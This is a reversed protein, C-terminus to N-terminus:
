KLEFRTWSPCPKVAPGGHLQCNWSGTTKDPRAHQCQNCNRQSLPPEYARDWCVYKKSCPKCRWFTQDKGIRKAKGDIRDEIESYIRAYLIPDFVVYEVHYESTDKNYAILYASEIQMMGMMTQLQWYYQRMSVIGERLLKAFYKTAMSKIEIIAVPKDTKREWLLADAHAKALGNFAKGESQLERVYYDTDEFAEELHGIVIWEIAKGLQFIRESRPENINRFGRLSWLPYASCKHGIESAGVYHPRPNDRPGKAANLADQLDAPAPLGTVNRSRCTRM